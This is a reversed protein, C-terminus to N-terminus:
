QSPPAAIASKAEARRISEDVIWPIPDHWHEPPIIAVAKTAAKLQAAWSTLKKAERLRQIIAARNQPERCGAVSWRNMRGIWDGCGGICGTLEFYDLLAKLETGPGHQPTEDKPQRKPRPPHSPQAVNARAEEPTRCINGCCHVPFEDDRMYGNAKCVLCQWLTKM